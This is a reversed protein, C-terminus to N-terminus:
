PGLRKAFSIEHGDPDGVHFFREGWSADRPATRPAIGLALARAHMADVDSVFFIVRGWPTIAAAAERQQLNLHTRGVRFSTFSADEGGYVPVFGLGRYFEVSRRMDSVVLTVADLTEITVDGM